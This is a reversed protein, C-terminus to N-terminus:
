NGYVTLSHEIFWNIGEARYTDLELYNGQGEVSWVINQGVGGGENLDYAPWPTGLGSAGNPDLGTFFNIWATSMTKALARGADDVIPPTSYGLGLVNDFVFAVEQFHIAGLWAPIGAVTVDFRYSYSPVGYNSWAINARRRAYHMYLDGFFAMTRRGQLGIVAALEDGPKIVPAKALDPIGIAQINPYM